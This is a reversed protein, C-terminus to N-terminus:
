LGHVVATKFPMLALLKIATQISVDLIGMDWSLHLVSELLTNLGRASKMWNRKLSCEIIENKGKKDL